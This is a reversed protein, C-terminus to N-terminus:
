TKVQLVIEDDEQKAKLLDILSPLIDSKCLYTAAAEDSACTGIFVVIELILDDEGSNPLLRGRMWDVMEFEKLLRTFDLDPLTLNGLIGVCELVFEDNEARHVADAIDGIFEIFLNKTPGEHQSINRIMKIILPDQYTFARQMLLRLGNGECILQANRKNAALNIALAMIELDVQEDPCQLIIKMLSPIADTYTFMSKVKDEMSLHYLVCSVPNQNAQDALLSVLRPLMGCKVM